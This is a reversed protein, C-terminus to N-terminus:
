FFLPWPIFASVLSLSKGRGEGSTPREGIQIFARLLYCQQTATTPFQRGRRVRPLSGPMELSKHPLTACCGSLKIRHQDPYSPAQQSVYAKGGDEEEASAQRRLPVELLFKFGLGWAVRHIKCCGGVQKRLLFYRKITGHLNKQCRKVFSSKLFVEDGTFHIGLQKNKNFM